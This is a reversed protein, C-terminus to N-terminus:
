WDSEFVAEVVEREQLQRLGLSNMLRTKEGAYLELWSPDPARDDREKARAYAVTWAVLANDCDGPIPVNSASALSSSVTPIYTFRITTAANVQPAVRITPAGVPAGAGHVAYWITVNSPDVPDNTRAAVFKDDNYDLPRFVLGYNDSDNSGDLPEIMYVKHVDTPLGTLTSSSATLTVTEDITIFHEQKLNSGDRWLDKIGAIIIGTLEASSWFRATVEELRLRALAEIQAITTAM